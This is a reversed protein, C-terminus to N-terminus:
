PLNNNSLLEIEQIRGKHNAQQKFELKTAQVLRRCGSAETSHSQCQM